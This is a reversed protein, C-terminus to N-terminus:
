PVPSVRPFLPDRANPPICINELSFPIRANLLSDYVSVVVTPNSTELSLGLRLVRISYLLINEEEQYVLPILSIVSISSHQWTLPYRAWAVKGFCAM